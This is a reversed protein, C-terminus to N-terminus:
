QCGRGADLVGIGRPPRGRHGFGCRIGHATKLDCSGWVKPPRHRPGRLLRMPAKRMGRTWFSANPWLQTEKDAPRPSPRDPPQAASEGRVDLLPCPGLDFRPNSRKASGIGVLRFPIAKPEISLATRPIQVRRIAKALSHGLWVLSAGRPGRWTESPSLPQPGGASERNKM